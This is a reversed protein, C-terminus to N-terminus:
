QQTTYDVEIPFSSEDDYDLDFYDDEYDTLRSVFDEYSESKSTTNHLKPTVEPVQKGSQPTTMMLITPDTQAEKIKVSIESHNVQLIIDESPVV